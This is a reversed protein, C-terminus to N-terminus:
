FVEKYRKLRSRRASGAIDTLPFSLLWVIHPYRAIRTQIADCLAGRPLYFTARWQWNSGMPTFRITDSDPDPSPALAEAAAQFQEISAPNRQRVPRRELRVRRGEIRNLLTV